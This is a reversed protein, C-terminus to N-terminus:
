GFRRLTNHCLYPNSIPDSINIRNFIDLSLREMEQESQTPVLEISLNPISLIQKTRSVISGIETSNPTYFYTFNCTSINSLSASVLAPITPNVTPNYQLNTGDFTSFCKTQDTPAVAFRLIVLVLVGFIPILVEFITGIPRRFQLLFNKWLLLFFQLLLKQGYM